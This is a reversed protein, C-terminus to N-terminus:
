SGSFVLWCRQALTPKLIRARRAKRINELEADSLEFKITRAFSRNSNGAPVFPLDTRM